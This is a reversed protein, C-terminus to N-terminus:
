LKSTILYLYVWTKQQSYTLITNWEALLLSVMDSSIDYMCLMSVSMYMVSTLLSTFTYRCM